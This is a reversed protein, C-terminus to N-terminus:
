AWPNRCGKPLLIKVPGDGDLEYGIGHYKNLDHLHSLVNSRNTKLEKAAADATKKTKLMFKALVAGRKGDKKVPTKLKAGAPKGKRGTSKKAATKKVVKKKSTGKQTRAKKSVKKNSAKKSTKKKTAAKNTSMKKTREKRNIVLPWMKWAAMPDHVDDKSDVDLATNMVRKLTAVLKKRPQRKGHSKNELEEVLLGLAQDSMGDIAKYLAIALTSRPDTLDPDAKPAKAGLHDCITVMSQKAGMM